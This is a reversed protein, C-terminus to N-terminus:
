IVHVTPEPTGYHSKFNQTEGAQRRVIGAPPRRESSPEDHRKGNAPGDVAQAPDRQGDGYQESRPAGRIPRRRRLGPHFHDGVGDVADLDGIGVPPELVLVARLGAGPDVGLVVVGALDDRVGREFAPDRGPQALQHLDRLDGRRPFGPVRFEEGQPAGPLELRADVPPLFGLPSGVPSLGSGSPSYSSRSSAWASPNSSQALMSM